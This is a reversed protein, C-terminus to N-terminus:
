RETKRTERLEEIEIYDVVRARFEVSIKAMNDM